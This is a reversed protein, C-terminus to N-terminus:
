NSMALQAQASDIALQFPESDIDFLLQDKKVYQNNSVYLKIIKGTIRPTIQVVNANVYADDTSLYHHRYERVGFWVLGSLAFFVIISIRKFKNSQILQQFFNM